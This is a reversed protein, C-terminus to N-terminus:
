GIRPARLLLSVAQRPSHGWCQHERRDLLKGGGVASTVEKAKLGNGRTNGGTFSSTQNIEKRKVAGPPRNQLRGDGCGGGALRNWSSGEEGCSSELYGEASGFAM